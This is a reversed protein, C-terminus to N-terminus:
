RKTLGVGLGVSLAVIVLAIAAVVLLLRLTRRRNTTFSHKEGMDLQRLLDETNDPDNSAAPSTSGPAYKESLPHPLPVFPRPRHPRASPRYTKQPVRLPFRPLPGTKKPSPVPSNDDEAIVPMQPQSGRSSTPSAM